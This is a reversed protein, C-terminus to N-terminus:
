SATLGAPCLKLTGCGKLFGGTKLELRGKSQSHIGHKLKISHPTYLSPAGAPLSRPGHPVLFALSWERPM